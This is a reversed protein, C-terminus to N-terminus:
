PIDVEKKMFRGCEDRGYKYPTHRKNRSQESTTAWRCNEPEYDGDNDIRDITLEDSYGHSMAWDHFSEFDNRWEDCVSIGREGYWEYGTDHPNHCRSKIGTWIRYIRDPGDKRNHGHKVNHELKKACSVCQRSGGAIQTAVMNGCDCRCLWKQGGPLREVLTLQGFRMGPVYKNYTRM